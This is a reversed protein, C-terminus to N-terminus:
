QLLYRRRSGDPYVLHIAMYSEPHKLEVDKAKAAFAVVRAIVEDWSIKERPCPALYCKACEQPFSACEHHRTCHRHVFKGCNKCFSFVSTTEYTVEWYEAKRRFVTSFGYKGGDYCPGGYKYDSYDHLAIVKIM